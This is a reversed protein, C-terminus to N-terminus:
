RLYWASPPLALMLCASLLPEFFPGLNDRRYTRAMCPLSAGGFGTIAESICLMFHRLQQSCLLPGWPNWSSHRGLCHSTEQLELRRARAILLLTPGVQSATVRLFALTCPLRAGPEDVPSRAHLRGTAEAAAGPTRGATGAGERAAKRGKQKGGTPERPETRAGSGERGCAGRRVSGM